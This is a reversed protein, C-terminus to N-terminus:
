HSGAFFGGGYVFRWVLASAVLLVVLVLLFRSYRSM